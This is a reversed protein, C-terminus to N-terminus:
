PLFKRGFGKVGKAADRYFKSDIVSIVKTAFPALDERPLIENEILILKRCPHAILDAVQLGAVNSSKPKVKLEASTFREQFREHPIYENGLRYLRSFSKKLKLDEKGGRSESLVDGIEDKEDLFFIFRELLIELCHHYPHHRWVQYRERHELKDITVSVVTFQLKEILSLLSKDFRTRLERDKLAQFPYKARLIDKRHLIIHEDPDATFFDNKLKELKPNLVERVYNLEFIVGTLGLFRENPNEASKLDQNGVEDIYLRYKM